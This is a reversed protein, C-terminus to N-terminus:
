CFFFFVFSVFSVYFRLNTCLLGHQERFLWGGTIPAAHVTNGEKSKKLLYNRLPLFLDRFTTPVFANLYSVDRLDSASLNAELVGDSDVVAIGSVRHVHM